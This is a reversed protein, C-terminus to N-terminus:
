NRKLTWMSNHALLADWTNCQTYFKANMYYVHCKFISCPMTLLFCVCEHLKPLPLLRPKPINLDYQCLRLSHPKFFVLMNWVLTKVLSAGVAQYYARMESGACHEMERMWSIPPRIKGKELKTFRGFQTLDTLLFMVM